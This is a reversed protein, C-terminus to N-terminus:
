HYVDFHEFRKAIRAPGSRGSVSFLQVFLSHIFGVSLNMTKPAFQRGALALLETTWSISDSAGHM